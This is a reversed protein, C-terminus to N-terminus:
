LQTPARPLNTGPHTTHLGQKGVDVIEDSLDHKFALSQEMVMEKNPKQLPYLDGEKGRGAIPREEEVLGVM